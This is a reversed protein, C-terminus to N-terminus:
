AVWTFAHDDNNNDLPSFIESKHPCNSFTFTSCSSNSWSSSLTLAWCTSSSPIKEFDSKSNVHVNLLKPVVQLLLSCSYITKRVDHQYHFLFFMYNPQILQHVFLIVLVLNVLPKSENEFGVGFRSSINHLQIKLNNFSNIWM